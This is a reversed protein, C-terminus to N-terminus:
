LIIASWVYVCFINIDLRTSLPQLRIMWQFEITVRCSACKEYEMLGFNFYGKSRYRYYCRLDLLTLNRRNRQKKFYFSEIRLLLLTFFYYNSSERVTLHKFELALNCICSMIHHIAFWILPNPQLLPIISFLWPKLKTPKALQFWFGIHVILPWYKM